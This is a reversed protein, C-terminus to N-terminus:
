FITSMLFFSPSLLDGASAELLLFLRIEQGDIDGLSPMQLARSKKVSSSSYRESMRAIRAMFIDRDVAKCTLIITLM